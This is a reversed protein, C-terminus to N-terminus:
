GLVPGDKRQISSESQRKEWRIIMFWQTSLKYKCKILHMFIKLASHYHHYAEEYNKDAECQVAKKGLDAVQQRYSSLDSM